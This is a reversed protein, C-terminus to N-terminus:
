IQDPDAYERPSVGFEKKFCKAFYSHNTFGTEYMVEAITRNKAKILQAARKLKVQRILENLSLGTQQKIKRYLNSHSVGIEKCMKDINIETDTINKHIFQITEQLLRESPSETKVDQNEVILQKKIYRDVQKNKQLLNDIRAKLVDISFPKTLYADAGARLGKVQHTDDSMATLLVVPISSWQPKAKIQQCLSLGDMEPMMVDSVVLDIKYKALLKLGEKGNLAVLFQYSDSLNLRIFELTDVHDDILLVIPLSNDVQPQWNPRKETSVLQISEPVLMEGSVAVIPLEIWFRSGKGVESEFDIRGNMRECYERTLNLGIGTGSAKTGTQSGQFFREFIHARDEDSIGSGSDVVEIIFKQDEVINLNFHVRGSSPTFKLANSLLNQIVSELKPLDSMLPCLPASASFQYDIHKSEAMEAFMEFQMRCFGVLEIAQYDVRLTEGEVKQIDLLQNVLSLLRKSNRWVLQLMKNSTAEDAPRELLAQVPGLILNLPTRFEHSINTFFQQKAQAIAENKDHELKYAQLQDKWMAKSRYVSVLMFLFIQLLIIYFVIAWPSAWLPPKVSIQLLAENEFWVGDNNTGKVRFTYKGVDLNSYSAFNQNGSTYTWEKEAGELMYAYINRKPDGFHLAAFEITISRQDYKLVVQQAYPIWSNDKNSGKLQLFSDVSRNGVRFRTVFTRPIYTDKKIEAPNFSIFGDNGGFYLAGDFARACSQPLFIDMPIGKNASFTEVQGTQVSFKFITTLTTGWLDGNFDEILNTITSEGAPFIDFVDVSESGLNYRVLQNNLGMWLDSNSTALLATVPSKETYSRLKEISKIQQTSLDLTFVQDEYFFWIQKEIAFINTNFDGVYEFYIEEVRNFNGKARYMGGGWTSVWFSGDSPAVFASIYNSRLGKGLEFSATITHMKRGDWVNIGGASGIWIRGLHDGTITNINDLVLAHQSNKDSTFVQKQGNATLAIVGKKTALWQTGMRDIYLDNVQNGVMHNGVRDYVPTFRFMNLNSHIQSIGNATALWVIGSQDKFIDWVVNNALSFNNFPDHTAVQVNKSRLDFEHFGFDTGFYVRGDSLPFICKVVENSFATNSQNYVSSNFSNVDFLVLGTETGIWLKSDNGTEYPKIDLILNNKLEPKYSGKLNFHLFSGDTSIRNLGNFTGVWLQGRSDAYLARVINSGLKSNEENYLVYRGTKQNYKFLGDSTGVWLISDNSPLLCRVERPGGLDILSNKGTHRDIHLLGEYCGVWLGNEGDTVVDTVQNDPLLLNDTGNKRFMKMEYGDYRIFGNITGFWMFGDSDQTISFIEHVPLGDRVKLNNFIPFNDAAHACHVQASLVSMLFGLFLYKCLNVRV